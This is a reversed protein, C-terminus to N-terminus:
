RRVEKGQADIMALYVAKFQPAITASKRIALQAAHPTMKRSRTLWAPAVNAAMVEIHALGVADVVLVHAPSIKFVKCDGADLARQYAREIRPNNPSFTKMM